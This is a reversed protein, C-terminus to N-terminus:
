PNSAADERMRRGILEATKPVLACNAEHRRGNVFLSLDRWAGRALAGGGLSALGRASASARSESFHRTILSTGYGGQGNGGVGGVGDGCGGGGDVGGSSGSGGGNAGNDSGGGSGGEARGVDGGDRGPSTDIGLLACLEERIAEFQECLAICGPHSRPDHWPRGSPVLSPVLMLPRQEVRAWLGHEVAKCHIHSPDEGLRRAAAAWLQWVRRDSHDLAIAAQYFFSAAGSHPETHNAVPAPSAAGSDPSCFDHLLGLSLLLAARVAKDTAMRFAVPLRWWDGSRLNPVREAEQIRDLERICALVDSMAQQALSPAEPLRADRARIARQAEATCIAARSPFFDPVHQLIQHHLESRRADGDVGDSVSYLERLLPLVAALKDATLADQVVECTPREM